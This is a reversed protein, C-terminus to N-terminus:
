FIYDPIKLPFETVSVEFQSGKPDKLSGPVFTFSGEISGTTTPFNYCSEYVFEEEGAQLLPYQM